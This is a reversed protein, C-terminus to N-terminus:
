TNLGLLRDHGEPYIMFDKGGGYRSDPFAKFSDVWIKVGADYRIFQATAGRPEKGKAHSIYIFTKKRFRQKLEKYKSKTLGTYQLSDIFIFDPSRQKSLRVELEDIPEKDLIRFKGQPNTFNSRELAQRFSLSAGEELSNYAVYGFQTLYKALQLCFSTKGNASQGWVIWTDGLCPTGLMDHWRDTFDLKKFKM